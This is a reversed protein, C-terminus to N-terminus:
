KLVTQEFDGAPPDTEPLETFFKKCYGPFREPHLIAALEEIIEDLRDASQSYNPM